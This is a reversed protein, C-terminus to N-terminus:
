GKGNAKVAVAVGGTTPGTAKFRLYRMNVQGFDWFTTTSTYPSGFSISSASSDIWNADDNSVQWKFSATGSLALPSLSFSGGGAATQATINIPVGAIAGTSTAALQFTNKDVVIPYYTTGAVLPTPDTGATKAYLVPLATTLGDNAVTITDNTLNISSPGGGSFGSVTLATTGSTIPFNAGVGTITTTAYVVGATNTAVMVAGLTANANIAAAISLASATASGGATWDVGNRLTVGDLTVTATDRGGAFNAAGVVIAARNSSMTFANGASGHVTATAYVISGVVSSSLGTINNFLAGLSNAAITSVSLGTSPDFSNWALGNAYQAGNVTVIAGVLADNAGGSFTAGSLSLATPTSSLLTYNNGPLGAVTATASVVSGTGSTSVVIQSSNNLVTAISVATNTSSFGKFWDRGEIYTAGNFVFYAGGVASNTVVTITAQAKKPALSATSAISLSNAAQAQGLTTNNAVTIQGTAKSGDTFPVTAFTASSVVAQMSLTTVSKANLDVDFNASYALGATNVLYDTYVPAGAEALGSLVLAGALMLSALIKKTM